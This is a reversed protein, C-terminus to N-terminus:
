ETEVVTMSRLTLVMTITLISVVQTVDISVKDNKEQKDM